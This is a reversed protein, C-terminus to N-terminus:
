FIRAKGNKVYANKEMQIERVKEEYAQDSFARRKMASTSKYIEDM